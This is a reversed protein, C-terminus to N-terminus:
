GVRRLNLAEAVERVGPLLTDRAYSSVSGGSGSEGTLGLKRRRQFDFAVQQVAKDRVDAPLPIESTASWNTGDASPLTAVGTHNTLATYVVGGYLVQDGVVYTDEGVWDDAFTYGGAHTVKVALTGTMWWGVRYLMGAAANVQYDTDATLADGYDGQLGEKVESVSVVPYASLLLVHTRAEPVTVYEVRSAYELAPRGEWVRGAARAIRASVGTILQGLVTDYDTDTSEIGLLSKVLTLSCLSM